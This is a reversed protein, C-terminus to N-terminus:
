RFFRRGAFLFLCAGLVSVLIDGLLSYSAIGVLGLLLGGVVSGITGLVWNHWFGGPSDMIRGAIYGSLSGILISLIFRFM